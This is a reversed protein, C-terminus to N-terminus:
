SAHQGGLIASGYLLLGAITGSRTCDCVGGGTEARCAKHYGKYGAPLVTLTLGATLLMHQM